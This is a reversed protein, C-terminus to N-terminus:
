LHPIANNLKRKKIMQQRQQFTRWANIREPRTEEVKKEQEEREKQEKERLQKEKEADAEAKAAAKLLQRRRWERDILLEKVSSRLLLDFEASDSPPIDVENSIDNKVTSFSSSFQTNSLKRKKLQEVEREKKLEVKAKEVIKMFQDRKDQDILENKANQLANFVIQALERQDSSVKDPHVLLSLNRFQRNIDNLSCTVPLDLVDFPNLKFSANIRNLTEIRSEDISKSLKTKSVNNQCDSNTETYM